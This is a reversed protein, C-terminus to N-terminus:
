FEDEDWGDDSKAPESNGRSQFQSVQGSLFFGNGEKPYTKWFAVRLVRDGGKLMEKLTEEAITVKGTWHPAKEHESKTEKFVSIRNDDNYETM